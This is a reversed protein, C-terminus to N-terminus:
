GHDNDKDDKGGKDDGKDDRAPERDDRKKKSSLQFADAFTRAAMGRIKDMAVQSLTKVVLVRDEEYLQALDALARGNADKPVLRVVNADDIAVLGSDELEELARRATDPDLLAAKGAAEITLPRTAGYLAIVLELKEFSDIQREFLERVHKISSPM